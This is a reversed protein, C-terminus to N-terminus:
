IMLINRIENHMAERKQKQLEKYKGRQYETRKIIQADRVTM